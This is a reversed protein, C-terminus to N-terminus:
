PEQIIIRTLRERNNAWFRKLARGLLMIALAWLLCSLCYVAIIEAPALGWSKNFHLFLNRWSIQCLYLALSYEGAIRWKKSSFLDSLAAQGSFAITLAVVFFFLVVFDLQGSPGIQMVTVVGAFCVLEILTLAGKALRTLPLKKLYQAANYVVSGLAIELIARCTGATLYISLYGTPGRLSGNERSMYGLLFFVILPVFVCQYFEKFKRRLPYQLLMAFLMSSIYWVSGDISTFKVGSGNLMFINWIAMSAQKVYEGLGDFRDWFYVLSWIVFAVTICILYMPMLGRIKHGIFTISERSVSHHDLGKYREDAKQASAMMFYGSVLLFFDVGLSGAPLIQSRLEGGFVEAGHFVLIIVSFFLRWFDVEGYYKKQM